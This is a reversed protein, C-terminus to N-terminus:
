LGYISEVYRYQGQQNKMIKNNHKPFNNSDTMRILLSVQVRLTQFEKFSTSDKGNDRVGIILVLSDMTSHFQPPFVTGLVYHM